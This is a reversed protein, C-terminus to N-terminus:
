NDIPGAFHPQCSPHCADSAVRAFVSLLSILISPANEPEVSTAVRNPSLVALTDVAFTLVVFSASYWMETFGETKQARVV